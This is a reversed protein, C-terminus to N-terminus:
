YKLGISKIFDCIFNVEFVEAVTLYILAASTVSQYQVGFNKAM